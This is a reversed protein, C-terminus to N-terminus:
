ALKPLLLFKLDSLKTQLQFLIIYSLHSQGPKRRKKNYIKNSKANRAEQKPIENMECVFTQWAINIKVNIM